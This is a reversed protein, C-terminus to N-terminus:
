FALHFTFTFIGAVPLIMGSLLHNIAMALLGGLYPQEGELWKSVM